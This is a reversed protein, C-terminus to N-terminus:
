FQGSYGIYRDGLIIGSSQQPESDDSLLLWAVSAGIAVVATGGLIYSMNRFTEQEDLTQKYEDPRGITDRQSDWEDLQNQRDVSLGFMTVAGIALAGGVGMTVWPLISPEEAPPPLDPQIEALTFDFTRLEGAKVELNRMGEEFGDKVLRVTYKGPDLELELPTVGRREQMDNIYIKAGPPDTELTVRATQPTEPEQPQRLRAIREKVMKENSANPNAQLYREYTDAAEPKGLQEQMEAIRYLINPEPFIEYAAQLKNISTEFDKSDYAQRAESFLGGLTVREEETLANPDQAFTIAPMACVVALLFAALATKAM